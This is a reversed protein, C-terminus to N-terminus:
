SKYSSTQVALWKKEVNERKTKESKRQQNEGNNKGELM